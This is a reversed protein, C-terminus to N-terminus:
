NLTPFSASSDHVVTPTSPRILVTFDEEQNDVGEDRMSYSLYM